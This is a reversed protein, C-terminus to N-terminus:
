AAQIVDDASLRRAPRPAELAAGILPSTMLTVGHARAAALTEQDPVDLVYGHIDQSKAAVGLKFIESLMEAGRVTESSLSLGIGSLGTGQYARYNATRAPLQALVALCYPRLMSVIDSLRSQPMGRPLDEIELLLFPHLREDIERLAATIEARSLPASILELPLPLWILFRQGAARNEGLVRAVHRIRSLTVSLELRARATRALSDDLRPETISVCRWTMVTESRANWVPQFQHHFAIKPQHTGFGGMRAMHHPDSDATRAIAAQIDPATLIEATDRTLVGDARYRARWVSLEEPPCPGLMVSHLDHAIRQCCIYGEAPTHSPLSVLVSQEDLAAYFDTPALRQRLLNELHNWVSDRVKDWRPETEARIRELGIIYVCGKLVLEPAAAVHLEAALAYEM